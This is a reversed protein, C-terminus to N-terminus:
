GVCGLLLSVECAAWPSPAGLLVGRDVRALESILRRLRKSGWRRAAPIIDREAAWEPVSLRSAIEGPEAGRELLVAARLWTMALDAPGGKARLMLMVPDTTSTRRIRDMAAALKPGNRQKMATRFPGLDLDSSGRVMAKVDSLSIYDRGHARALAAMKSLEFSVIGLDPGVANVLAEALKADLAKKNKGLLGTAEARAFRIALDRLSKRATPRKHELRFGEHVLELVPIKKDDVAGEVFLLLCTQAIPNDLMGQVTEISVEKAPVIILAAAGFTGAMTIASVAESDTDCHVIERGSKATVRIANRVERDRLYSETGGIVIVPPPKAWSM